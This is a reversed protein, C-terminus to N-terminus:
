KSSKPSIYHHEWLENPRRGSVDKANKSMEEKGVRHWKKEETKKEGKFANTGMFECTERWFPWARTDRRGQKNEALGGVPSRRTEQFGSAEARTGLSGM